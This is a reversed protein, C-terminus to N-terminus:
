DVNINGNDEIVETVIVTKSDQQDSEEYESTTPLKAGCGTIGSIMLGIVLIAALAVVWRNM